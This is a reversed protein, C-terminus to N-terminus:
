KRFNELLDVRDLFKCNIRPLGPGKWPNETNITVTIKAHDTLESGWITESSVKANTNPGIIFDLTLLTTDRQWTHNQTNSLVTLGHNQCFDKILKVAEKKDKNAINHNKYKASINLNLDGLLFINQIQIQTALLTAREVIRLYYEQHHINPGYIGVILYPTGDKEGALWATHGDQDGEELMVKDFSKRSYFLVTGRANNVSPSLVFGERWMYKLQNGNDLHTEQVCVIGLDHKNVVHAQNLVRKLKRYNKLGRVNHTQFYESVPGPNTEIDHSLTIIRSLYLFNTQGWLPKYKLGHFGHVFLKSPVFGTFRQSRKSRFLKTLWNVLKDEPNGRLGWIMSCTRTLSTVLALSLSHPSRVKLTKRKEGASNVVVIDNFFKKFKKLKKACKEKM